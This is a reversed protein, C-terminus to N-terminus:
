KPLLISIEEQIKPNLHNLKTYLIQERWKNIIPVREKKSLFINGDKIYLLQYHYLTQSIKSNKFETEFVNTPVESTKSSFYYGFFLVFIILLLSLIIGVTKM